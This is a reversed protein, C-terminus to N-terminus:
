MSKVLAKGRRRTGDDRKLFFDVTARKSSCCLCAVHESPDGERSTRWGGPKSIPLLPVWAAMGTGGTSSRPTRIRADEHIWLRVLANAFLLLADCRGIDSLEAFELM